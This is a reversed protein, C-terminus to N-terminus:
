SDLAARDFRQLGAVVQRGLWARLRGRQPIKGSKKTTKPFPKQTIGASEYVQNIALACNHVDAAIEYRPGSTTPLVQRFRDGAVILGSPTCVLFEMRRFAVAFQKLETRIDELEAIATEDATELGSLRSLVTEIKSQLERLQDSLRIEMPANKIGRGSARNILSRAGNSELSAQCEAVAQPLPMQNEMGM